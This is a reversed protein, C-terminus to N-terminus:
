KEASPPVSPHNDETKLQAACTKHRAKASADPNAAKQQEMCEHMRQKYTRHPNDSPADDAFLPTSAAILFTFILAHSQQM